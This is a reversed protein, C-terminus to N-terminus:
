FFPWMQNLQIATQAARGYGQASHLNWAQFIVSLYDMILCVMNPSVLPDHTSFYCSSPFRVTDQWCKQSIKSTSDAKFRFITLGCWRFTPNSQRWLPLHSVHQVPAISQPPQNPQDHKFFTSIRPTAHFDHFCPDLQFNSEPLRVYGHLIVMKVPFFDSYTDM